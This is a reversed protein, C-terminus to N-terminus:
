HAVCGQAITRHVIHVACRCVTFDALHLIDQTIANVFPGDAHGRPKEIRWGLGCLCLFNRCHGLDHRFLISNIGCMNAVLGFADHRGQFLHCPDASVRANLDDDGM